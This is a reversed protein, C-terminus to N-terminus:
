FTTVGQCKALRGAHSLLCSRMFQAVAKSGEQALLCVEELVDPPLAGGAVELVAVQGLNAFFALSTQPGQGNVEAVNLDLLATSQLYGVECAALLDRM